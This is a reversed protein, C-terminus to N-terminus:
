LADLRGDHLLSEILEDIGARQYQVSQFLENLGQSEPVVFLTHGQVDTIEVTFNGDALGFANQILRFSKDKYDAKFATLPPGLRIHPSPGPTSARAVATPDELWKLQKRKTLSVLALIAEIWKSPLSPMEYSEVRAVSARRESLQSENFRMM